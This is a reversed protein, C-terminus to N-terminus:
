AAPAEDRKMERTHDPPQLRTGNRRVPAILPQLTTAIRIVMPNCWLPCWERPKEADLQTPSVFRSSRSTSRAAPSVFRSKDGAAWASVGDERPTSWPRCQTERDGRHSVWEDDDSWAAWASGDDAQGCEEDEVWMRSRGSPRPITTGRRNPEPGDLPGCAPAAESRSCWRKCAAHRDTADHDGRGARPLAPVGLPARTQQCERAHAGTSDLSRTATSRSARAPLSPTRRWPDVPVARLSSACESRERGRPSSM